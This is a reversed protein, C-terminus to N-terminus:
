LYILSIWMSHSWDWLPEPILNPNLFHLYIFLFTTIDSTSVAEQWCVFILLVAVFPFPPSLLPDNQLIALRVSQCAVRSCIGALLGLPLNSPQPVQLPGQPQPSAPSPPAQICSPVSVAPELKVVFCGCLSLSLWCLCLSYLMSLLCPVHPPVLSLLLCPSSFVCCQLFFCSM